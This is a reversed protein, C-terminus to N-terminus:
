LIEGVDEIRRTCVGALYMEVLAEEVSIERRKHRAIIATVFRAGRLKSMEVNVVGSTATLKRDYHGARYADRDATREYRKAGVLADAEEELLANITDEVTKRVLEKM